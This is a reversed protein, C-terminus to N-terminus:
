SGYWPVPRWEAHRTQCSEMRDSAVPKMGDEVVAVMADGFRQSAEDTIHQRPLDPSGM